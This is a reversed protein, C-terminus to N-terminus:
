LSCCYLRVSEEHTGNQGANHRFSMGAQYQGAPCTPNVELAGKSVYATFGCSAGLTGGTISGGVVLNDHVITETPTITLDPTTGFGGDSYFVTRANTNVLRLFNGDSGSYLGLDSTGGPDTGRWIRGNAVEFNGNSAREASIALTAVDAQAARTSQVMAWVQTRGPLSAGDVIAELWLERAAFVSDPLAVGGRGLVVSFTGATVDVAFTDSWLQVDGTAEEGDHLRFEMAVGTASVPNGNQELQGQYPIGKLPVGPGAAYVMSGLAILVVAGFFVSQPRFQLSLM